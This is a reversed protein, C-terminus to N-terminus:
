YWGRKVMSFARQLNITFVLRIKQEYHAQKLENGLSSYVPFFVEFYDQVLNIRVGSDYYFNVSEGKNQKIAWDGYLNFWKWIGINVNNSLIFSNAYQDTFFTKFGGEAWVFQQHFIGTSESRGYYNYQFLYDTPRDLAFSFYDTQTNNYLFYGAFIRFDWQRNKNTLFRYRFVGSIKGFNKSIQLDTKYFLDKIINVNFYSYNLNVVQYNDAETKNGITEKDIYMYQLLINSGQRKRIYKNRNKIVFYPNFRTYTLNHDYHFYKTNFGYLLAYPKMNEFYQHYSVGLSGTLEKSKFGYVPTIVYNFNNHLVSENMIQGGMQIGDYYNYEFYPNIFVQQKKPNEFDQYLRIQLAKGLGLFSKTKVFNNYTQLEPYNNFYNLGVMDLHSPTAIITDNEIPKFHKSWVISDNRLGYVTAPISATKNQIIKFYLSDNDKATKKLKYDYKSRSNIYKKFWKHKNDIDFWEFFISDTIPTQISKQYFTKIKNQFINNSMEDRLMVFGLASKYPNAVSRNFNSLSDLSVSLKQDKNMRAMYLYLWPYKETMKVQSAYYFKVLKFESISGILKLDPHHKQYYQYEIFASLGQPIWAYKRKDIQMVSVYKLSIQHLIKMEWVLEKKFPNVFKPLLDLGYVKNNSFDEETILIKNNPYHGISQEHFDIIKKLIRTKEIMSISTKEKPFQIEIQNVNIKEFSKQIIYIKPNTIKNAFVSNEQVNLNSYLKKGKPLNKINIKFNAPTEPLDNLNKHSYFKNQFIPSFYFHSLHINEDSDIGYGTFKSNPLKIDYMFHVSIEENPKVGNKFIIQLIDVQKELFNYSIDSHNAVSINKIDIFGRNKKRTFHFNLNYNEIFRKALATNKNKYANAWAYFYLTDKVSSSKNVIISKQEVTINKSISDIAISIQHNKVLFQAESQFYILIFFLFFIHKIRKLM